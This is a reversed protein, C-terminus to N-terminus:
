KNKIIGNEFIPRDLISATLVEREAQRLAEKYDALSQMKNLESYDWTNEIREKKLRHYERYLVDVNDTDDHLYYDGYVIMKGTLSCKRVENPYIMRNLIFM